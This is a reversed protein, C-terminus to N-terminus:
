ASLELQAEPEVLVSLASEPEEPEAFVLRESAVWGSAWGEV